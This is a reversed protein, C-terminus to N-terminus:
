RKVKLMPSFYIRFGTVTNRKSDKWHNKVPLYSLIEETGSNKLQNRIFMWQGNDKEKM